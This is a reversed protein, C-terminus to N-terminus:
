IVQLEIFQDVYEIVIDFFCEGIFYRSNMYNLSYVKMILM